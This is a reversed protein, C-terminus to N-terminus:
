RDTAFGDGYEEYSRGLLTWLHGAQTCIRLAARALPRRGALAAFPLLAALGGAAAVARLARVASDARTGSRALRTFVCGGRFARQALFAFRCREPPVFETVRAEDCWLFRAGARRMRCFLDTDSGGTRGFAPDFRLGAISRTRIVANSTRLDSRDIESGTPYRRRAFFEGAALWGRPAAEFQSLVPGFAGDCAERELLELYASIWAEDAAEDDDVFMLWEGLAEDLARNRAHAINRRPEVFYRLPDLAEAHARVVPEASADADNDVVITELRLGPPRKTRALSELLRALGRPRRYSAICISVDCGTAGM